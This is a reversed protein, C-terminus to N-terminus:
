GILMRQSAELFFGRDKPEKPQIYNACMELMVCSSKRGLVMKQSGGRIMM